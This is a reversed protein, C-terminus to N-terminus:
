KLGQKRRLLERLLGEEKPTLESGGRSSAMGRALGTAHAMDEASGIPETSGWAEAGEFGRAQPVLERPAPRPPLTRPQSFPGIEGKAQLLDYWLNTQARRADGESGLSAHGIHEMQRGISQYDPPLEPGPSHQPEGPLRMYPPKSRKTSPKVGAGSAVSITERDKSKKDKGM